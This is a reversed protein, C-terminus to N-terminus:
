SNKMKKNREQPSNKEKLSKRQIENSYNKM